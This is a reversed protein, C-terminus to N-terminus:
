DPNTSEEKGGFTDIKKNITETILNKHKLKRANLQKLLLDTFTKDRSEKVDSKLIRDLSETTEMILKSFELKVKLLPNAYYTPGGPTEKVLLMGLNTFCKNARGSNLLNSILENILLYTRPDTIDYQADVFKQLANLIERREFVCRDNQLVSFANDRIYKNYVYERKSQSRLINDTSQDLEVEEEYIKDAYGKAKTKLKDIRKKSYTCELIIPCNVCRMIEYKFKDCIALVSESIKKAETIDKENEMIITFPQFIYINEKQDSKSLAQYNGLM